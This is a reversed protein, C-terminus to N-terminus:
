RPLTILCLSTVSFSVLYCIVAQAAECIPLRSKMQTHKISVLPATLPTLPKKKLSAPRIGWQEWPFPPSPQDAWIFPRARTEFIREQASFLVQTNWLSILVEQDQPLCSSLHSIVRYSLTNCYSNPQSSLTHPRTQPWPILCSSTVASLEQPKPKETHGLSGFAEKKGLNPLNQSPTPKAQFSWFSSSCREGALHVRCHQKAPEPSEQIHQEPCSSSPINCPLLKIRVPAIGPASKQWLNNM